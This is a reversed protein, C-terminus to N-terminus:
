ATLIYDSFISIFKFYQKKATNGNGFEDGTFCDTVVILFSSDVCIISSLLIGIILPSTFRSVTISFVGTLFSDGIFTSFFVSDVLFFSTFCKHFINIKWIRDIM